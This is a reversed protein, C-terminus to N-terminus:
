DIRSFECSYAAIQRFQNWAGPTNNEQNIVFCTLEVTTKNKKFFVVYM